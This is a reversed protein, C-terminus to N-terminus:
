DDYVEVFMQCIQKKLCINTLWNVDRVECKWLEFFIRYDPILFLIIKLLHFSINKYAM